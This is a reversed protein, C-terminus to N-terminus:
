NLWKSINIYKVLKETFKFDNLLNKKASEWNEEYGFLLCFADLLTVM